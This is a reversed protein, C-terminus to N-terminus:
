LHEGGDSFKFPSSFRQFVEFAMDRASLLPNSDPWSVPVSSWLIGSDHDPAHTSTVKYQLIAPGETVYFGHAVGRPVYIVNARRASLDFVAHSGYTPSGVRLDLVVDMVAGALCYVVKVHDHPPTQFHLGRLVGQNSVTYYEEAFVTAMGAEAFAPSHFTKVFRGRTDASSPPLLEYCGFVGTRLVEFM